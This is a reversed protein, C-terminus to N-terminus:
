LLRLREELLEASVIDTAETRMESLISANGKFSLYLVDECERWLGFKRFVNREGWMLIGDKEEDNQEAKWRVSEESISRHFSM